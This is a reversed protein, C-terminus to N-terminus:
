CATRTCNWSDHYPLRLPTCSTVQTGWGRDAFQGELSIYSSQGWLPHGSVLHVDVVVGGQLDGNGGLERRTYPVSTPPPSAPRFSTPEEMFSIVEPDSSSSATSSRSRTMATTRREHGRTTHNRRLLCSSDKQTTRRRTERGGEMLEVTLVATVCVM